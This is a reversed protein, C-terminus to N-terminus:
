TVLRGAVGAVRPSGTSRREGRRPSSWTSRATPRRRAPRGAGQKWHGPRTQRWLTVSARVPTRTASELMTGRLVLPATRGAGKPAVVLTLALTSLVGPPRTGVASDDRADTGWHASPAPEPAPPSSTATLAVSSVPDTATRADRLLAPGGVGMIVAASISMVVGRVWLQWAM